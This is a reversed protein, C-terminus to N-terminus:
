WQILVAGAVALTVSVAKIWLYEREKLVLHEGVLVMVLFVESIVVIGAADHLSLAQNLALNAFAGLACALVVPRWHDRFLAPIRSVARPMLIFNLIAAPLFSAFFTLSPANFYGLLYKSLIIIAANFVTVILVLVVGEASGPRKIHRIVLWGAAMALVTGALKLWSFAEGLLVVSLILVWILRLKSLAGVLSAELLGSARFLLGNHAVILLGMVAALLWPWPTHPLRPSALMFPLSIITGILSYFFSFAWADRQARLLYRNLLSEGTYFLGALLTLMLWAQM